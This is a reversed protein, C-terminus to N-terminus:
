GVYNLHNSDIQTASKRTKKFDISDTQTKVGGEMVFILLTKVFVRMKAGFGELLDGERM